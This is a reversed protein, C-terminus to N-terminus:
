RVGLWEIRPLEWLEACAKLLPRPAAGSYKKHAQLVWGGARTGSSRAAVRDLGILGTRIKDQDLRTRGWYMWPCLVLPPHGPAVERGAPTGGVGEEASQASFGNLLGIEAGITDCLTEALDILWHWADNGGGLPTAPTMMTIVTADAQLAPVIMFGAGWLPDGTHESFRPHILTTGGFIRTTGARWAEDAFAFPKLGHAQMVELCAGLRQAALQKEVVSHLHIGLLFSTPM